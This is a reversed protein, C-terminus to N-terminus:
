NIEEKRIIEIDLAEPFMQEITSVLEKDDVSKLNGDFDMVEICPENYTFEVRLM